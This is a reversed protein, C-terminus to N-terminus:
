PSRPRQQRHGLDPGLLELLLNGVSEGVTLTVPSGGSNIVSGAGSLSGVQQSSGNLDLTSSSAISLATATPLINTTEQEFRIQSLGTYPSTGFNSNAYIEIYQATMPTNFTYDSGTYSTTGDAQNFTMDQVHAGLGSGGTLSAETYISASNVGEQTYVAPNGSNENYNWLHFGTITQVSGLDFTIWTPTDGNSLWMNGGPVNGCTSTSTAGNCGAITVPSSPNMGSGDITHGPARNDFGNYYSEATVAVPTVLTYAPSLKVTGANIVTAGSYTNNGALVLTGSGTKTLSVPATGDQIVGFFSSSAGANGVTLVNGGSLGSNTVTGAGGLGNVAADFGGLDFTGANITLDGKGPGSPIVGAAGQKLTGNNIVTGGQYNNSTNSLTVVNGGNIGNFIDKYLTGAGTIQGQITLANSPDGGVGGNSNLTITGTLITNQSGGTGGDAFIAAKQGTGSANGQQGGITNLVFNNSITTTGAYSGNNTWLMVFGSNSITITGTGMAANANTGFMRAAANNVTVGGSFTNGPNTFDFQRGAVGGPSNLSFGVPSAGDTVLSAITMDLGTATLSITASSGGSNTVTGGAGFAATQTFAKSFGGLDLTGGTLSLVSNDPIGAQNGLQLMGASLLTRGTFNNAGALM